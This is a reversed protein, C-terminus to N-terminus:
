CLSKFQCPFPRTPKPPHLPTSPDSSYSAHLHRQFSLTVNHRQSRANSPLPRALSRRYCALLISLALHFHVHICGSRDSPPCISLTSSLTPKQRRLFLTVTTVTSPTHPYFHLDVITPSLCDTTYPARQSYSLAVGGMPVRWLCFALRTSDLLYCFCKRSRCVRALSRADNMGYYYTGYYTHVPPPPCPVSRSHIKSTGVNGEVVRCLSIFGISSYSTFKPDNEM